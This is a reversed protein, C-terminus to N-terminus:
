DPKPAPGKPGGGGGAPQMEKLKKANEPAKPQKDENSTCGVVLGIAVALTLSLITRVKM